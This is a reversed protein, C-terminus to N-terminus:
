LISKFKLCRMWNKQIKENTQQGQELRLRHVMSGELARVDVMSQLEKVSSRTLFDAPNSKGYIHIIHYDYGQLVQLWKWVRRNVAPQSPLNKLSDHDTDITFHAGAIYHRWKGVAWVICLLEREYVSYRCEAPNLEGSGYCVPQLGKGFDQQSVAGASVESSDATVTFERAFDPLQLVPGTVMATKLRRFGEIEKARRVEPGWVEAREKKTLDTLTAAIESFFLIFKRYFSALGLFLHVDKVSSPIPWEAVARVKSLSPKVGCAGVDFGLYEVETRFFDCKKLVCM